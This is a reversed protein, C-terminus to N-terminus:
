PKVKLQAILDKRLENLDQQVRYISSQIERVFASEQATELLKDLAMLHATKLGLESPVKVDPLVGTGEWNEGTIPNIARGTPVFM